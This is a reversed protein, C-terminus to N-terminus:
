TIFQSITSSSDITTIDFKLSNKSFPYESLWPDELVQISHGNAVSVAVM